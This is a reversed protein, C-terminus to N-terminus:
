VVWYSHKLHGIVEDTAPLPFWGVFTSDSSDFKNDVMAKLVDSNECAQYIIAVNGAHEPIPDRSLTDLDHLIVWGKVNAHQLDDFQHDIWTMDEYSTQVLTSIELGLEHTVNCEANQNDSWRPRSVLVLCQESQSRFFTPHQTVAPLLNDPNSFKDPFQNTM